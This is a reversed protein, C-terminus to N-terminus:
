ANAPERAAAVVAQWAPLTLCHAAHPGEETLLFLLVEAGPQGTASLRSGFEACPRDAVRDVLRENPCGPLARLVDPLREITQRGQLQNVAL